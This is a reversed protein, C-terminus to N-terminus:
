ALQWDTVLYGVGFPADDYHQRATIRRGRVAAGVAKWTRTGAALLRDGEAPDLAALTDADGSALATAVLRDFPEAAADLYGPAKHTRRASGDGMALIGVRGSFEESVTALSGPVVGVRTGSYGAQELLWTGVTHALPLRSSGARVPGAFGIEFPVGFGQLDGGDGPGFRAGPDAGGGVVVVVEPRTALM